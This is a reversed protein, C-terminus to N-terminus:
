SNYVIHEKDKHFQGVIWDNVHGQTNIIRVMDNSLFQLV